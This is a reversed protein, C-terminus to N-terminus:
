KKLQEVVDKAVAGGMSGDPYYVNVHANTVDLQRNQTLLHMMKAGVNLVVGHTKLSLMVPVM